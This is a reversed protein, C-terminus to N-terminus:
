DHDTVNELVEAYGAFDYAEMRARLVDVLPANRPELALETLKADIGRVHGIQGLSVLERLHDSGPSKLTSGHPKAAGPLPRAQEEEL